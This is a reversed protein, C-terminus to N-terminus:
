LLLFYTKISKIQLNINKVNIIQANLSKSGSEEVCWSCHNQEPKEYLRSFEDTKWNFDYHVIPRVATPLASYCQNSYNYNNHYHFYLSHKPSIEVSAHDTQSSLSWHDSATVVSQVQRRRGRFTRRRCRPWCDVVVWRDPRTLVLKYWELCHRRLTPRSFGRVSLFATM